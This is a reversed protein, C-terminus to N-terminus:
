GDGRAQRDKVRTWYAINNRTALTEPHDPGLVRERDPLLAQFLRLAAAADGTEGTWYAINNRTTLTEPHDPGLVREQDPLLARCLRLAGAADDVHGTWRAIGARTILTDPHDPGLVREQDALLARYLRLAGAADGTEGTWRAINARIILTDPHDPGLVRERDHLLAQYLRLAGAADGCRGTWYALNARTTLTQPSDPGLVREQDPLLARYLRLAGAADGTEGTLAAINTRAGLTDRHRPGLVREQEPLLEQYLLLGGARDGAHATWLAINGRTVLTDRHRLGLVREQEPLLKQLLRLAGAADGAAGTWHAVNARTALTGPHDPGQIRNRFDLEHQGHTLAQRYQGLTAHNAALAHHIRLRDDEADAPLTALEAELIINQLRTDARPGDTAQLVIHAAYDLEPDGSNLLPALIQATMTPYGARGVHFALLLRWRTGAESLIRSDADLEAAAQDAMALAAERQRPDDLMAIASWIRAELGTVAGSRMAEGILAAAEPALSERPALRSLRVAATALWDRDQERGGPPWEALATVAIDRAAAPEGLEELGAALERQVRPLMDKVALDGRVRHAAQAAAVRDILGCGPDGVIALAEELLVTALARREAVALAAVRRALRPSAPDALRELREWRLVERDGGAVPHAGLVALAQAAQRAHLLGGAWAIVVAEESPKPGDLLAALVADVAALMEAEEDAASIEALRPAAAAAFVDKFTVTGRAIRRVAAEQLGPCLTRALNSRAGFGMDPDADAVHVLDPTMWTRSRGTLAAKLAGDPDVAAVVLVHGDRRAALNEIMTLALGRDLYDADDIIVVVPVRTSVAAVGRAARAVAGDQGSPSDDWAKGAAGVAIGALLFAVPAVPGSVFLSGIGIGTQVSGGLRDMGLLKAVQHSDSAGALCKRLVAAQLGTEGPLKHGDIRVVLTVPADDGGATEALRDLATTRGWGPPVAVLVVRSTMSRQWLDEQWETLEEALEAHRGEGGQM